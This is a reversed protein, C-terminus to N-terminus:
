LECGRFVVFLDMFVKSGGMELINEFFLKGMECNFIGDEEFKSYVDVLLM